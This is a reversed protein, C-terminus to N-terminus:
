RAEQIQAHGQGLRDATNRWSTCKSQCPGPSSNFYRLPSVPKRSRPM